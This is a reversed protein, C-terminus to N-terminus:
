GHRGGDTAGWWQDVTERAIRGREAVPIGRNRAWARCMARQEPTLDRGTPIAVQGSEVAPVRPLPVTTTSRPRASGNAHRIQRRRTQGPVKRGAEIWRRFAARIEDANATHVDIEYDTGDLAFRLTGDAPAGDIDDILLVTQKTAM